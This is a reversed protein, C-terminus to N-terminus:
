TELKIKRIFLFKKGFIDKLNSVTPWWDSVPPYFFIDFYSHWLLVFEKGEMETLTM